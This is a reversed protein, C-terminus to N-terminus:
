GRVRLKWDDGMGMGYMTYTTDICIVSRFQQSEEGM